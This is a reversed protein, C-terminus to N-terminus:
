DDPSVPRRTRKTKSKRVKAFIRREKSSRTPSTSKRKARQKLASRLLDSLRSLALERNAWQSRSEDVVVHLIGRSDLRPGLTTQLQLRLEETLGRLQAVDCLVEVKTSVKNVNQGGPGSSRAFRYKVASRPISVARTVAIDNFIM